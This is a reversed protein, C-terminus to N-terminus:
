GIRRLGLAYRRWREVYGHASGRIAALAAEDLQRLARAPAGVILSGDPFEKRETVLANAGVLCRAGIRAGNLITAGMGVLSDAGAGGTIRDAVSSGTLTEAGLAGTLNTSLNSLGLSALSASGGTAATVNLTETGGGATGNIAWTQGAVQAATLTVAAGDALSFAEVSTFTVTTLNTNSALRVTDTGNGGNVTETAGVDPTGNYVFTDDGDGGSMADSGLGGTLTDSGASGTLVEDGTSGNLQFAAHNVSTIGSIDVTAAAAANVVVTEVVGGSTGTVIWNKTTIQDGTFTANAGEALSLAEISTLSVTSLDTTATLRITDTDAGGDVSEGMGVDTTGNFVFTDNGAGGAMVDLGLGGTLTDAGLSGTLNEAGAAGVLSIGANNVATFTSLNVTAGSAANVVMTEAAGGDVGTVSWFLDSVQAGTFTATQGSAISVGDINLMVLGTLDTSSAVLLTDTGSTGDVTEGTTVVTTGGFVFVDDGVGGIVSDNGAGGSLTDNGTDGVLTDDGGLGTISENGTWGTIFENGGGGVVRM